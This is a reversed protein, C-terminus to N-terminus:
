TSQLIPRGIAQRTKGLPKQGEQGTQVLMAAAKVLRSTEHATELLSGPKPMHRLMDSEFELDLDAGADRPSLGAGDLTLQADIVHHEGIALLIHAKHSPAERELEDIGQERGVKLADPAQITDVPILFLRSESAGEIEVGSELGESIDLANPGVVM